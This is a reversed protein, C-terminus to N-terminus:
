VPAAMPELKALSAPIDWRPIVMRIPHPAAPAMAPMNLAGRAPTSKVKSISRKLIEIFEIIGRNSDVTDAATTDYIKRPFSSGNWHVSVGKEMTFM